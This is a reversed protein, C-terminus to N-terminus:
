LQRRVQEVCMRCIPTKGVHGLLVDDSTLEVSVIIQPLMRGCLAVVNQETASEGELLVHFADFFRVRQRTVNWIKIM